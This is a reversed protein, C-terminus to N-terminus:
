EGNVKYGTEMRPDLMERIGDGSVLQLLWM